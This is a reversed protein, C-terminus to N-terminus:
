VYQWVIVIKCGFCCPCWPIHITRDMMHKNAVNTAHITHTASLQQSKFYISLSFQFLHLPCVYLAGSQVLLTLQELQEHELTCVLVSLCKFFNFGNSFLTWLFCKFSGNGLVGGVGSSWGWRGHVPRKLILM